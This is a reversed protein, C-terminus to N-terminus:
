GAHVAVRNCHEAGSAVLAALVQGQTLYLQCVLSGVIELGVLKAFQHLVVEFSQRHVVVDVLLLNLSLVCLTKARILKRVEKSKSKDDASANTM